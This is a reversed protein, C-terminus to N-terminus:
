GKMVTREVCEQEMQEAQWKVDRQYAAIHEAWMQKLHTEKNGEIHRGLDRTIM